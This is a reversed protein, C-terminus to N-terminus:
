KMFLRTVDKPNSTQGDEYKLVSHVREDEDLDNKIFDKVEEPTDFDTHNENYDGDGFYHRTEVSYTAMQNSKLQKNTYTVLIFLPKIAM